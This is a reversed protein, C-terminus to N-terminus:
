FSRSRRTKKGSYAEIKIITRERDLEENVQKMVHFRDAVIEAQPMLKEAVNKYPKWMDISVEK